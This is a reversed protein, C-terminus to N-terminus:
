GVEAARGRVEVTSIQCRGAAEERGAQGQVNPREGGGQEEAVAGRELHERERWPQGM